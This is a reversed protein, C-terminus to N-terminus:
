QKVVEVWRGAKRASIQNNYMAECSVSPLYYRGQYTANLLVVYKQSRGRELDFYTYVRDDRIDRYDPVNVDYASNVDEMRTNRIEWGSPFIQTLAMDTYRALQGPHTFTVTAKFDTGQALKSVDIPQGTLTTYEVSMKLNSSENIADDGVPTGEVFLRAFVVGDTHNEFLVEGKAPISVPLEVQSVQKDSSVKEKGVGNLSYSYAIRSDKSHESLRSLAILAYATTQTSMWHQSSLQDTIEKMLQSAADLDDLLVLTEFIMAQDRLESGYSYYYNYGDNENNISQGEIIHKAVDKQGTLAYAAALRFKSESTLSVINRMRNM